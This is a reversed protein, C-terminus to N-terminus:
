TIILTYSVNGENEYVEFRVFSSNTTCTLYYCEKQADYNDAVLNSGNECFFDWLLAPLFNKPLSVTDFSHNLTSFYVQCSEPTVKYTIGDFSSDNNGFKLDLVSRTYQVNIDYINQKYTLQVKREQNFDVETYSHTNFPNSCSSFVCVCTVLLM